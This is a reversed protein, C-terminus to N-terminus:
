LAAGCDLRGATRVTVGIHGQEVLDMDWPPQTDAGSLHRAMRDKGEDLAPRDVSPEMQMSAAATMDAVRLAENSRSIRSNGAPQKLSGYFVDASKTLLNSFSCFSEQTLIPRRWTLQIQRKLRRIGREGLACAERAHDPVRTAACILLHRYMQLSAAVPERTVSPKERARKCPWVATKGANHTSYQIVSSRHM